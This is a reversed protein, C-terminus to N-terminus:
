SWINFLSLASQTAAQAGALQGQIDKMGRMVAMTSIVSIALAAGVMAAGFAASLGATGAALISQMQIVSAIVVGITGLLAEGVPDLAVGFTRLINSFLSIITQMSRMLKNANTKVFTIVKEMKTMVREAEIEAQQLETLDTKVIVNVEVRDSVM